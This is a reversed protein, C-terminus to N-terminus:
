TREERRKAKSAERRETYLARIRLARERGFDDIVINVARKLQASKYINKHLTWMLYSVGAETRIIDELRDGFFPGFPMETSRASEVTLHDGAPM